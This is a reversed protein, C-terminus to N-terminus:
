QYCMSTPSRLWLQAPVPSSVIPRCSQMNDAYAHICDGHSALLGASMQLICSLYCTRFHGQAIGCLLRRCNFQQTALIQLTRVTSYHGYFITEWIL